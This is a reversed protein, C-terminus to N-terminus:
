RCLKAFHHYIYLVNECTYGERIEASLGYNELRHKLTMDFNNEFPAPVIVLPTSEPELSWILNYFDRNQIVTRVANGAFALATNAAALLLVAGFLITM